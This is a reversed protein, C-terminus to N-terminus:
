SEPPQVITQRIAQWRVSGGNSDSGPLSIKKPPAVHLVSSFPLPRGRGDAQRTVRSIVGGVHVIRGSGLSERSPIQRSLCSGIMHSLLAFDGGVGAIIRSM